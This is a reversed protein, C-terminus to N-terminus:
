REDKVEKQEKRWQRRWIHRYILLGSNLCWIGTCLFPWGHWDWIFRLWKM